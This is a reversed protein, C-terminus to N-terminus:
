RCGIIAAIPETRVGGATPYSVEGALVLNPSDLPTLAWELLISGRREMGSQAVRCTSHVIEVRNSAFRQAESQARNTGLQRAIVASGAALSLAGVTFIFLAIIIEVVTYGRPVPPKKM